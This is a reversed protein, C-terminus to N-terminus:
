EIWFMGRSGPVVYLKLMPAPSPRVIFRVVKPASKMKSGITELVHAVAAFSVENTPQRSTHTGACDPRHDFGSLPCDIVVKMEPIHFDPKTCALFGCRRVFAGRREAILHAQVQVRDIVPKVLGIMKPDTLSRLTFV